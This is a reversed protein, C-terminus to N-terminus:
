STVEFNDISLRVGNVIIEISHTGPYHKRTSLQRFSQKKSVLLSEQDYDGEQIKFVKPSTKGNAKVYHIKYELRIKGLRDKPGKLEFNFHFDESIAVSNDCNFDIVEVGKPLPFEFLRLTTSDGKKLLTRAGHKMVWNQQEDDGKWLRILDRTLDPNDKSIDNINNAVSRRVYLEADNKLNDLIPIIPRPNEKFEPLSMAWPLRPRCGETALRRIHYNKHSSWKEMQKMMKKQDQIIFPRVAFESSAHETFYALAPLSTKWDDLGYNEVYQPIFMGEYGTFDPAIKKLLLIADKYNLELHQQIKDCIHRMRSKLERDPWKDDMVNKEFAACDFHKLEQKIALSLTQIYDPTYRNKLLESM